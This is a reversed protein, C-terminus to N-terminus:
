SHGAIVPSAPISIPGRPRTLLVSPAITAGAGYESRGGVGPAVGRRSPILNVHTDVAIAAANEAM